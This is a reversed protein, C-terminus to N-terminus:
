LQIHSVLTLNLAGIESFSEGQFYVAEAFLVGYRLILYLIKIGTVPRRWIYQVEDAFTLMYDYVYMALAVAALCTLADALLNSRLLCLSVLSTVSRMYWTSM